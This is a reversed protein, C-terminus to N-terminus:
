PRWPCGGPCSDSRPLLGSARSRLTGRPSQSCPDPSSPRLPARPRRTGRQVHAHALLMPPTGGPNAVARRTTLMQSRIHTKTLQSAPRTPVRSDPADASRTGTTGPPGSAPGARRSADPVIQTSAAGPAQLPRVTTYARTDLMILASIQVPLHGPQSPPRGPLVSPPRPPARPRIRSSRAAASAAASQRVRRHRYDDHLVAVPQGSRRRPAPHPTPRPRAAPAPRQDRRSLSSRTRSMISTSVLM